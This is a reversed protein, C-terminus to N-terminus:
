CGPNGPNWRKTMPCTPNFWYATNTTLAFIVNAPDVYSDDEDFGVTTGKLYFRTQTPLLGGSSNIYGNHILVSGGNGQPNLSLSFFHPAFNGRYIKLNPTASENTSWWSDFDAPTTISVAADQSLHSIVLFRADPLNGAPLGSSNQYGALTPHLALYRPFGRANRSIQTGSYPAYDPTLSALNPPFSKNHRLYTLVGESIKGLERDETEQHQRDWVRIITGSFMTLGITIFSLLGITAILSLGKKNRLACHPSVGTKKVNGKDM